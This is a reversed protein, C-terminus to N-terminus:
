DSSAGSRKVAEGWSLVDADLVRSYQAPTSAGVELGIGALRQRTETSNLVAAVESNLKVIIEAPLGAQGVVALWNDVEAKAIGSECQKARGISAGPCSCLAFTDRFRRTNRVLNTLLGFVSM